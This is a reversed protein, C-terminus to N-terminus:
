CSTIYKKQKLLLVSKPWYHLFLLAVEASICCILCDTMQFISWINKTASYLFELSYNSVPSNPVSQYFLIMPVNSHSIDEKIIYPLM